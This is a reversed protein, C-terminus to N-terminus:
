VEKLTLIKNTLEMLDDTSPHMLAKDFNKILLDINEPPNNSEKLREYKERISLPMKGQCMFTDVITNSKNINKSVNVLIENFYNNDVGYGATGFLFIKKNNLKLLYNAIDETCTDRNTWFGIFILDCEPIVDTPKGYYVLEGHMISKIREALLVTNGTHSSFIISYNM